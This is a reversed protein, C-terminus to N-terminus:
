ATLTSDLGSTADPRESTRAHAVEQSAALLPAAPLPAPPLHDQLLAVAGALAAELKQVRVQLVARSLKASHTPVLQPQVEEQLPEPPPAAQSSCSFSPQQACALPLAPVTPLEDFSGQRGNTMREVEYDPFIKICFTRYDIFGSDDEDLMRWLKRTQRVDDMDKVIKLREMASRFELYDISGSGNLDFQSFAEFVDNASFGSLVLARRLETGVLGLRREEWVQCLLGRSTSSLIPSSPDPM